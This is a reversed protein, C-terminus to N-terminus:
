QKIELNKGILINIGRPKITGISSEFLETKETNEEKISCDELEKLAEPNIVSIFVSKENYNLRRLKLEKRSLNRFRNISAMVDSNPGIVISLFEELIKKSKVTISLREYCSRGELTLKTSDYSPDRKPTVGSPYDLFSCYTDLFKLSEFIAEQKKKYKELSRNFLSFATTVISGVVAICACVLAVM